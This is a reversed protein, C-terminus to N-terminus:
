LSSRIVVHILPVEASVAKILPLKDSIGYKAMKFLEKAVTDTIGRGAGRICKVLSRLCEYRLPVELDKCAKYMKMFLSCSEALLTM